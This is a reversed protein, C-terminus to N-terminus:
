ERKGDEAAGNANLLLFGPFTALLHRYIRVFIGNLGFDVRVFFFFFLDGRFLINACKISNKM